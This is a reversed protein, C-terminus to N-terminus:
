QQGYQQAEVLLDAHLQTTACAVAFDITRNTLRKKTISVLAKCSALYDWSHWSGRVSYAM